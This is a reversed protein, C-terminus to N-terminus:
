INKLGSYLNEDTIVWDMKQDHDEFPLEDQIQLEYCIGIKYGKYGELYKDYYGAGRGLRVGEKTFGLGPVLLVDPEVTTSGIKPLLLEIGFDSRAELEEFAAKQFVMQADVIATFSTQFHQAGEVLKLWYPESVMPAFGGLIKTSSFRPTQLFAKLSVVLKQSREEKQKQTLTKLIQKLQSRKQKKLARLEQSEISGM